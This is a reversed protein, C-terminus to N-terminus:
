QVYGLARLRELEEASVTAALASDPTLRAAEAMRRWAQLERALRAVVDPHQAAV